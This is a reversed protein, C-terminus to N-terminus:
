PTTGGGRGGLVQADLFLEYTSFNGQNDRELKEVVAMLKQLQERQEEGTAQNNLGCYRKGCEQVLIQLSHNDTNVVYEDLFMDGIDKKHTFLVGVHRMAGAGFVEKVRSVALTDLATFRELQTVLLLVHPGPASLLYCDRYVQVDRTRPRPDITSPMDVVLINRGYCMGTALQCTRAMAQAGLRSELMPQCLISNGTASKGCGSQGVLILRLSSSSAFQNDEVSCNLAFGQLKQGSTENGCKGCMMHVSLM